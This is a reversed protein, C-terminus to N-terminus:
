VISNNTKMICVSTKDWIINEKYKIVNLKLLRATLVKIVETGSFDSSM